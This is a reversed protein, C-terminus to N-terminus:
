HSMPEKIMPAGVLQNAGEAYVPSGSSPHAPKLPWISVSEFFLKAKEALVGYYDHFLQAGQLGCWGNPLLQVPLVPDIFPFRRYEHILMFRREFCESPELEDSHACCDQYLPGYKDLFIRYQANIAALDWCQAVLSGPKSFGEHTATYVEVFEKIGLSAALAEVEAVLNHPSIWLASTLPGFGLYGLERRLQERKVRHLEPISYAVLRWKHDWEPMDNPNHFIREAGTDLLRKGSPTLSYYSKRNIREVQLWGARTMRVITSRVSQDSIGLRALLQILSGVWISGGVHRIYDGYLTFMVDKPRLTGLRVGLNADFLRRDGTADASLPRTRM